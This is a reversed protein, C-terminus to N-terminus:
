KLCFVHMSKLDLPIKIIAFSPFKIHCWLFESFLGVFCEFDRNFDYCVTFLIQLFCYNLFPLDPKSLYKSHRILNKESNRLQWIFNGEDVIIFIGNSEFDICTKQRFYSNLKTWNSRIWIHQFDKIRSTKELQGM